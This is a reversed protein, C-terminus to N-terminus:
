DFHHVQYTYQAPTEFTEGQAEECRRQIDEWMAEMADSNNHWVDQERGEHNSLM